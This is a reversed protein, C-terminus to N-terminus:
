RPLQRVHRAIIEHCSCHIVICVGGPSDSISMVIDVYYKKKEVFNLENQLISKRSNQSFPQVSTRNQM